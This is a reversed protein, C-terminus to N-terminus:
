AGNKLEWLISNKFKKGLYEFVVPGIESFGLKRLVVAASTNGVKIMATVKNLNLEEFAFSLLALSGDVALGKGRFKESIVFGLDYAEGYNTKLYKLSFLGLSQEGDTLGYHGFGHKKWHDMVFVLFEETQEDSLIGDQESMAKPDTVLSKFYAFDLRDPKRLFFNSSKSLVIKSKVSQHHSM